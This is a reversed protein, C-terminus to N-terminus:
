YDYEKYGMDVLKERVLANCEIYTTMMMIKLEKVPVGSAKALEKLTIEKSMSEAKGDFLSM